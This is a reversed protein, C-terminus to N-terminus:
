SLDRHDYLRKVKGVETREITKPDVLRVGDPTLQLETELAETLREGVGERDVDTDREVEATIEITDLSGDRRVDIRYVSSLGDVAYIATEIRSPFVNTGRVTLMDDTRGTVHDMRVTTRGCDCSDHHLATIDGTRYRFLPLAEKTLTTLVLEGEEGDDLVNGTEPDIVEPYFHDSQVHMGDSRAECQAAVGPGVIESLGYNNYVDADFRAAIRDMMAETTMEGGVFVTSVPLSTPDLGMEAAVDAIYHAYSTICGIADSDLDRMMRIQRKTNGGSMPIVTAGLEEAGQHFGFGGTFLGYGLSVQYTDGSDMGGSTYLRAVVENWVDLDGRTYGVIKSKGGTGSSAHVRLVDERPVAFMGDPYTDLLDEKTTFPLWPLETVDDLDDPDIGRRDFTARYHDVNEDAHRATERLREGQLSRRDATRMGEIDTYM